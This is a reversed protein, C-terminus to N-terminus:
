TILFDEIYVNGILPEKLTQKNILLKIQKKLGELDKIEQLSRDSLFNFITKRVLLINSEIKTVAQSNKLFLALRVRILREKGQLNKLSILFTKLRVVPYPQFIKKFRVEKVKVPLPSKRHIFKNLVDDIIFIALLSLLLIVMASILAIYYRRKLIGKLKEVQM